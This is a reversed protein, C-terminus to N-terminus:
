QSQFSADSCVAWLLCVAGLLTGAVSSLWALYFTLPSADVDLRGSVIPLTIRALIALGRSNGASALGACYAAASAVQLARVGLAVSQTGRPVPPLRLVLLALKWPAALSHLSSLTSMVLVKRKTRVM